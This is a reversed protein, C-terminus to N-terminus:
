PDRSAGPLTRVNQQLYHPQMREQASERM